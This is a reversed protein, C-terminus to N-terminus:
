IAEDLEDDSLYDLPSKNRVEALSVVRGKEWMPHRPRDARRARQAEEWRDYQAVIDEEADPQRAEWERLARVYDTMNGYESFRPEPDVPETAAPPPTTDMAKNITDEDFAFHATGYGGAMAVVPTGAVVAVGALMSDGGVLKGLEKLGHTIVSANHTSDSRGLLIVGGVVACAAVAGAGVACLVKKTQKKM